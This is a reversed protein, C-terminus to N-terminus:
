HDLEKAELTCPTVNSLNLVQPLNRDYQSANAWPWAFPMSKPLKMVIENGNYVAVRDCCADM